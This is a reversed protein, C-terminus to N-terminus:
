NHSPVFLWKDAELKSKQLIWVTMPPVTHVTPGSLEDCDRQLGLEKSLHGVGVVAKVSARGWHEVM